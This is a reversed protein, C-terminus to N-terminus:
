CWIYIYIVTVVINNSDNHYVYERNKKDWEISKSCTIVHETMCTDDDYPHPKNQRM